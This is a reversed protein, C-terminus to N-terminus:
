GGSKGALQGVKDILGDFKNFVAQFNERTERRAEEAQDHYLQQSTEIVTIRREHNAMESRLKDMTETQERPPKPKAKRWGLAASIGGLIGAIAVGVGSWNTGSDM